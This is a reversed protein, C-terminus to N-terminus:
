FLYAAGIRIQQGKYTRNDNSSRNLLGFDYAAKVQFRGFEVGVGGGVFIDTRKFLGNEGLLDINKDLSFREVEAAVNLVSSLAFQFTPGAFALLKINGMPVGCQLMVPVYINQESLSAKLDALSIDDIKIDRINGNSSFAYRVGPVISLVNGIPINYIGEVYFGKSVLAKGDDAASQSNNTFGAGIGLQAFASASAVVALVLTLVIRKM